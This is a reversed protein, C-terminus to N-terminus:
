QDHRRLCAGTQLLRLSNFVAVGHRRPEIRERVEDLIDAQHM